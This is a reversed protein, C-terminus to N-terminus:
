QFTILVFRAPKSDENKLKHPTGAPLWEVMGSPLSLRRLRDNRKDSLEVADTPVLLMPSDSQRVELNADPKLLVSVAHFSERELKVAANEATPVPLMGPEGAAKMIEVAIARYPTDSDNRLVHAFGGRTFHAEGKPTFTNDPAGDERTSTARDDALAINLYDHQHRHLATSQHPPIEVLWVRAVENETLLHHFEDADLAPAPTQAAAAVALALGLLFSWRM